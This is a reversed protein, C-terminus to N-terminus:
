CVSGTGQQWAGSSQAVANQHDAVAKRKKSNTEMAWAPIQWDALPLAPESEAWRLLGNEEATRFATREELAGLELLGKLTVLRTDKSRIYKGVAHNVPKGATAAAAAEADAVTKNISGMVDNAASEGVITSLKRVHEALNNLKSAV